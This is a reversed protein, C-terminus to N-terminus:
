RHARAQSQRVSGGVDVVEDAPGIAATEAMLEEDIHTRGATDLLLVDYGGLKAAKIAIGGVNAGVMALPYALLWMVGGVATVILVYHVLAGFAATVAIAVVMVSAVVLARRPEVADAVQQPQDGIGVDRM